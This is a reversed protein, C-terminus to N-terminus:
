RLIKELHEFLGNMEYRGILYGGSGNSYLSTRTVKYESNYAIPIELESKDIFYLVLFFKNQNVKSIGYRFNTKSNILNVIEEIDKKNTITTVKDFPNVSKFKIPRIELSSVKSNDIPFIDGENKCAILLIVLISILVIKM